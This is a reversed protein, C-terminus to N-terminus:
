QHLLQKAVPPVPKPIDASQGVLAELSSSYVHPEPYGAMTAEVQPRKSPGAESPPSVRWKTKNQMTPVREKCGAQLLGVKGTPAGVELVRGKQMEKLQEWVWVQEWGQEAAVCVVHLAEAQYWELTPPAQAQEIAEAFKELMVEMQIVRQFEPVVQMIGVGLSLRFSCAPIAQASYGLASVAASGRSTGVM